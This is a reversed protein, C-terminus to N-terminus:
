KKGKIFQNIAVKGKHIYRKFLNIPKRSEEFQFIVDDLLVEGLECLAAIVHNLEEQTYDHYKKGAKKNFEHTHCYLNNYAPILLEFTERYLFRIYIRHGRYEHIKLTRLRPIM